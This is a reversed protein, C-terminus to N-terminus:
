EEGKAPFFQALIATADATESQIRAIRQEDLVLKGPENKEGTPQQNEELRRRAARRIQEGAELAGSVRPDKIAVTNEVLTTEFLGSTSVYELPEPLTEEPRDPRWGLPYRERCALRFAARREHESMAPEPRPTTCTHALLYLDRANLGGKDTLRRGIAWVVDTPGDARRPRALHYAGGDGGSRTRVAICIRDLKEAIDTRDRYCTSLRELEDVIREREDAVASPEAGLSTALELDCLAHYELGYAHLAISEDDADPDRRGGRIWELYRGRQRPSWKRYSTAQGGPKTAAAGTENPLSLDVALEDRILLKPEGIVETIYSPGRLGDQGGNLPIGSTEWRTFAGCVAAAAQQVIEAPIAGAPETPRERTRPAQDPKPPESKPEGRTTPDEEAEPRGWAPTGTHRWVQNGHKFPAM